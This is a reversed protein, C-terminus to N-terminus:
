CCSRWSPASRGARCARAGLAWSWAEVVPSHPAAPTSHRARPRNRTRHRGHAGDPVPRTRVPPRAGDARASPSTRRRGPLTRAPLELPGARRWAFPADRAWRAQATGTCRRRWPSIAPCGGRVFPPLVAQCEPTGSAGPPSPRRIAMGVMVRREACPCRHRGWRCPDGPRDHVLQGGNVLDVPGCTLPWTSAWHRPRTGKLPVRVLGTLRPGVASPRRFAGGRWGDSGSSSAWQDEDDGRGWGAVEVGSEPREPGGPNAMERGAAMDSTM